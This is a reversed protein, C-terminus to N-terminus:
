KGSPKSPNEARPPPPAPTAPREHVVPAPAPAPSRDPVRAPPPPSEVRPSPQYVPAPASGSAAVPETRTITREVPVRGQPISMTSPMLRYRQGIERPEARRGAPATITVDDMNGVGARNTPPSSFEAVTTGVPHRPTARPNFRAKPFVTTDGPSRPPRGAKPFAGIAAPPGYSIIPIGCLDYGVIRAQGGARARNVRNVAQLQAFGLGPSYFSGYYYDCPSLYANYYGSDYYGNYAYANSYGGAFRMFDGGVPEGKAGLYDALLNMAEEPTRDELLQRLALMNWDGGATIADFNFPARSALAIATGRTDVYDGDYARRASSYVGGPSPQNFGVFFKKLQLIKHGAIKVSLGPFDPHLVQIQGDLDMSVVFVYANESLSIEPQIYTTTNVVATGSSSYIRISPARQHSNQAVARTSWACVMLATAGLAPALRMTRM